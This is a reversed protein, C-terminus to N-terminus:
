RRPRKLEAVLIFSIISLLFWSNIKSLHVLQWGQTQNPYAWAGFFTAINEAVWIFFGLGLFSAVLPVQRPKETNLVVARSRFFLFFVGLILFWRVDATFHHTFFNLYIAVGLGTVAWVSPWGELRIQLRHWVAILFSAVSAYMFGSYLPVGGVKTWAFEPYAWSGAWVKFLELALGLLHFWTITKLEQPSEIKTVVLLVQVGIFLLLLFDYRYLGLLPFAMARTLALAAFIAVPFILALGLKWVFRVLDSWASHVFIGFTPYRRREEAIFDALWTFFLIGALNALLDLWEFHRVRSLAQSAEEASALAGVWLAAVPVAWRGVTVSRSGLALHLLFAAGGMLVFHGVVDYYPVPIVNRGIVGTYALVIVTGLGFLYVVLAATWGYQERQM